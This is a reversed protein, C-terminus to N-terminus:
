ALAVEHLYRARFKGAVVKEEVEACRSRHGAKDRWNYTGDEGEVSTVWKASTRM